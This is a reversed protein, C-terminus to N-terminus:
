TLFNGSGCAPDFFTLNAIKEQFARAKEEITKQNKYKKISDLEAQLDNLFLPDIVKHINEVSTYHMGGQRRTEPNLTSEFVAGFITPSINSWNFGRSAQNLVIDKLEPTFPPIIIDEEKFLGGNVYPFQSLEPHEDEWFPDGKKRDDIKTDLVKFLSKLALGMQNPVIPELYNYFQEKAPFLGADEAYLCFVLRVCLTNISHKIKEDDVQDYKTFINALENYIKRVLEGADVSVNKEKELRTTEDPKVLFNLLYLDKKLDKLDISVPTADLSDRVDYVVIKKFNSLVLFDAKERSGLYNDYRKAQEFPTIKEKNGGNPRSEPAFLDVGNSKQEILVKTSPIYADISGHFKENEKLKIPKEYEIFTKNEIQEKPVGLIELLTNWYTVKDAVESGQDKWTQIFDRIVKTNIKM